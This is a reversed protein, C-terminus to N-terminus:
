EWTVHIFNDTLFISDVVPRVQREWDLEGLGCGLSPVYILPPEFGFDRLIQDFVAVEKCGQEIWELRSPNRWNRKTPLCIVRSPVHFFIRDEWEGIHDGLLKPLEPHKQAADLALGAGMVAKGDKRRYTNTPVIVFGDNQRALAWIDGSTYEM